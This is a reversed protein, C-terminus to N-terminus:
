GAPYSIDAKPVFFSAAIIVAGTKIIAQATGNATAKFININGTKETAKHRGHL